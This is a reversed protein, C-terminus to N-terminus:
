KSESVQRVVDSYAGFVAPIDITGIVDVVGIAAVVLGEKNKIPAVSVPVNKYSGSSPVTRLSKGTTLVEELIPGTYKDDLVKGGEVRIGPVKVSRLTVPLQLIDNIALALPALDGSKSSESIVLEAM